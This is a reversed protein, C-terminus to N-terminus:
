GRALLEAAVRRGIVEEELGLMVDFEMEARTPQYNPVRKRWNKM